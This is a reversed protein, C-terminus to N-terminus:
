GRKLVDGPTCDLAECISSLTSLRVERVKGTVLHSLNAETIGVRRALERSSVGRTKLIERLKIEIPM